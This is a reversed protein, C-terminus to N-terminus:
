GLRAVNKRIVAQEKIKEHAVLLILTLASILTLALGIWLTLMYEPDSRVFVSNGSFDLSRQIMLPVVYNIKWAFLHSILDNVLFILFFGALWRTIESDKSRM